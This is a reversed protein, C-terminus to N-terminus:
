LLVTLRNKELLICLENSCGLDKFRQERVDSNQLTHVLDFDSIIGGGTDECDLPDTKLASVILARIYAQLGSNSMVSQHTSDGDIFGLELLEKKLQLAGKKMAYAGNVIEKAIALTRETLEFTGDKQLAADLQKQKSM